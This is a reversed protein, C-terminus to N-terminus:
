SPERTDMVGNPVWAMTVGICFLIHRPGLIILTLSEAVQAIILPHM